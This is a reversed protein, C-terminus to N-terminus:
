WFPPRKKKQDKKKKAVQVLGVGCVLAPRPQDAPVLVFFTDQEEVIPDNKSSHETPTGRVKTFGVHKSSSGQL